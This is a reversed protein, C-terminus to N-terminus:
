VGTFTYTSTGNQETLPTAACSEVTLNTYTVVQIVRAGPLFESAPSLRGTYTGVTNGNATQSTISEFEWYSELGNSWFFTQTGSDEGTLLETCSTTLTGSFETTFSATLGLPIVFLCPGSQETGEQVVEAPEDTIGPTYTITSTGSPCAGLVPAALAPPAATLSMGIVVAVTLGVASLTRRVKM